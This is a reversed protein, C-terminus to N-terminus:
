GISPHFLKSKGEETSYQLKIWSTFLHSVVQLMQVVLDTRIIDLRHAAVFPGSPGVQVLHTNNENNNNNALLIIRQKM